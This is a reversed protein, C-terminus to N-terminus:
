LKSEKKASEESPARFVVKGQRLVMLPRARLDYPPHSWVVLDADRGRLLTGVRDELGALRAPEDTVSAMALQPDMGGAVLLALSSQLRPLGTQSTGEGAIAFPIGQKALLTPLKRARLKSAFSLPRLVVSLGSEALEDLV